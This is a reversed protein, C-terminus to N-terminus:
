KTASWKKNRPNYLKVPERGDEFWKDFIYTKEMHFGPVMAMICTGFRQEAAVRATKIDHSSSMEGVAVTSEGGQLSARYIVTWPMM